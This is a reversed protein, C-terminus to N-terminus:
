EEDLEWEDVPIAVFPYKTNRIDDDLIDSLRGSLLLSFLQHVANFCQRCDCGAGGGVGFGACGIRGCIGGIRSPGPEFQICQDREGCEIM